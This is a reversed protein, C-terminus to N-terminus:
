GTARRRRPTRLLLMVDDDAGIARAGDNAGFRIERFGRICLRFSAEALLVEAIHSILVNVNTGCALLEGIGKCGLVFAHDQTAVLTQLAALCTAVGTPRADVGPRGMMIQCATGSSISGTRPCRDSMAMHLRPYKLGWADTCGRLRKRQRVAALGCPVRAILEITIGCSSEQVRLLHLFVLRAQAGRGGEPPLKTCLDRHQDGWGGAPAVVVNRRTAFAVGEFSPHQAVHFLRISRGVGNATLTPALPGM